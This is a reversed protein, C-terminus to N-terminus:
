MFVSEQTLFSLRSDKFSPFAIFQEHVVILISKM